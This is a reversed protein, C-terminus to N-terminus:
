DVIKRDSVSSNRSGQIILSKRLTHTGRHVVFYAVTNRGFVNYQSIPINDIYINRRNQITIKRVSRPHKHDTFYTRFHLTQHLYGSFAQFGTQLGGTGPAEQPIDPSGNLFMGFAVPIRDYPFEAPMPHSEFKMFIRKDAM